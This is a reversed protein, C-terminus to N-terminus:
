IIVRNIETGSVGQIKYPHFKWDGKLIRRLNLNLIATHKKASRQASRGIAARVSENNESIQQFRQCRTPKKILTSSMEEFIEVWTKIAYCSPVRLHRELNYHKFERHAGILSDGNKCFTKM